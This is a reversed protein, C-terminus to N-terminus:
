TNIKHYNYYQYYSKDLAEIQRTVLNTIIESFSKKFSEPFDVFLLSNHTVNKDDLMEYLMDLTTQCIKKYKSLVLYIESNDPNSCRPKVFYAESFSNVLIYILSITLPESIPLFTKIIASGGEALCSLICLIQGMNIKSLHIEQENFSEPECYLGADATMFNINKLKKNTAYYKIICSHTIDGSQDLDKGFLWKDNYHNILGYHDDLAFNNKSLDVSPVLTQAFWSWKTNKDTSDIYHNLASIFAGPAECIHFSNLSSSLVIDGFQDLIEYM